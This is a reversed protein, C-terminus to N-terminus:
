SEIVGVGALCGARQPADVFDLPDGATPRWQPMWVLGPEVLHFGDFFKEIGDRTRIGAPTSTSRAYVERAADARAMAQIGEVAIHSIVLWSGPALRARLTEVAAYAEDDDPVFPLVAALLLAVPQDLDIIASLHPDTEIQHLLHDPDRLDGQIADALDNGALLQRSHMVAVDDIDVYLVRADSATQQAVEHVNGMTPIGSGIDLFQRVGQEGALFRVARGLFARNSHAMPKIIPMQALVKEAAVRDVEFNTFGGLYYDYMRAATAQQSKNAEANDLEM